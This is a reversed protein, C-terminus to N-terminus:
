SQGHGDSPEIGDPDADVDIGNAEIIMDDVTELVEDLGSGKLSINNAELASEIVNLEDTNHARYVVPLFMEPRSDVYEADDRNYRDELTRWDYREEHSQDVVYGQNVRILRAFEPMDDGEDFADMCMEVVDEDSLVKAYRYVWTLRQPSRDVIIHELEVYMISGVEMEEAHPILQGSPAEYTRSFDWPQSELSM